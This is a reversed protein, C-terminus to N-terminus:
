EVKQFIYFRFLFSWDRSEKDAGKLDGYFKAVKEYFQKNKPNEEYQIVNKFYPENMTYVNKFLDSDVLKCGAKKMTSVMLEKSVLFEEIYKDDDSIWSMHVDVPSGVDKDLDGSYKKVIEFLKTRQGDDDTYNSIISNDEGFKKHVLDGDFLTLLIYGDKRLFNNINYVLNDISTQTGFLYHIAFQSNFNDFKKDKTFIKDILQKNEQSMNSLSKMQSEGDLKTGGDGLLYSVKGFDPFKSKYLNYRSIAGNTSSYIGEYDPDFGVYEGVRAHYIKLIDGGRGCGLDLLSQRIIKGNMEKKTPSCYTYIIVSKIWNHFERLKKILNTVKQYYKDQKRESSIISTNLRSSLIKMQSNYNEPQSLNNIEDVTVAEIMSKWVKIAIDKYNGYRKQFKNVSETKDWRTRLITWRYPHPYSNDNTYIIEIVTKNLILNGEIDRVQGKVLPFYAQDNKEYPMFPIPQERSGVISGVFLNTVRFEKFDIKDPLSNDFINMYGGTERNPEFEIYVDLSNTNPPKYKYIPYKHEKKDKSYKQEIGTFIIGDLIYPCNTNSNKTCNIWIIDSFLFIESNSGGTPFLFLKPHFITENINISDLMKNLNKYFNLVEKNYHTKIKDLNFNNNYTEIKYINSKNNLQESLENVKELRDKLLVENKIDKGKFYLCDFIMFLYKRKDSLYIYEGEVITNNFNSIKKNLKKVHLNNSILYLMDDIIFLQYKDGDAKDTAAYKNPINDVFHQVEASIPQMSYLTNFNNNASGYVINKYKEIVKNEEDNTIIINSGYLVKKIYEMENLITQLSVKDKGDPSYDIELEYTKNMDNIKSINSSTKVMTLDINLAPSISLSLRQKYRYIIKDTQSIPLKSLNKVINDPISIEKSIRFRIDFIDVDIIKDKDKIKQIFTFNPKNYYQSFLISFVMNNKKQHVLSLFNNINENGEISVRYTSMDESLYIVDLIISDKLNLNEKESKYKIYKLIKMFDIIPLKNDKKYNNFMVEFEDTKSLSNFLKDVKSVVDKSLM